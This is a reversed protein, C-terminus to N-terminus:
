ETINRLKNAFQTITLPSVELNGDGSSWRAVDDRFGQSQREEWRDFSTENRPPRNGVLPTISSRCRYHAPPLPGKGYTYIKRNRSRCIDTTRSDIVSVWMYSRGVTSGAAAVVESAAQQVATDMTSRASNFIRTIINTRDIGGLLGGRARGTVLQVLQSRSLGNSYAQRLIRDLNAYSGSEFADILQPLTLGNAGNPSNMIRSALASGGALAAIGYLPSTNRSEVFLALAALSDEEDLIEINDMDEALAASGFSRVMTSRDAEIFDEIFTKLELALPGMVSGSVERLDRSLATLQKKTLDSMNEVPLDAFLLKLERELEKLRRHAIRFSESKIGEVYVQHRIVIDQAKNNTLM